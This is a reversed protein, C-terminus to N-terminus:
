VRVPRGTRDSKFGADLLKQVEAGRAFDPQDNKGTQISRIFRQYLTPVTGCKVTRWVAKDVDPGRCIELQDWAKDLDIRLAGQEGFIRLLLSNQHGTAWRTTHIVGLAGNAAEVTMVASDNADLRYKGIRNGPAKPFAKLRCNVSKLPGVPYTAFDLIHVGIDGLVGGSGHRTSLRWLWASSTRWDGWVRSSLWSQLYSAEFHMVRGIAGSRVLDAARELASSRRYSLNVMNIVKRRAAARAMERADPYNLALPKECLVHKGAAIAQLALPHHSVDNSVISVADVTEAKLLAGFDDYWAPVAHKEAFAKAREPVIDCVATLRCGRISKFSDAHANAMGGTGVIALRIM